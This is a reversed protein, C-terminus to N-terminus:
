RSWTIGSSSGASRSRRSSTASSQSCKRSRSTASPHVSRDKVSPPVSIALATRNARCRGRVRSHGPAPMRGRRLPPSGPRPDATRCAPPSGVSQNGAPTTGSARLPPVAQVPVSEALSSPPAVAHLLLRRSLQSELGADQVVLQLLIPKRAPCDPLRFPSPRVRVLAIRRAPNRVTMRPNRVTAPRAAGTSSASPRSSRSSRLPATEERLGIGEPCSRFDRGESWPPAPSPSGGGPRAAPSATSRDRHRSRAPGHPTGYGRAVPTPPAGRRIWNRRPRCARALSTGAAAERLPAEASRM